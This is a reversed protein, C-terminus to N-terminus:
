EPKAHTESCVHLKQYIKALGRHDVFLQELIACTRPWLRQLCFDPRSTQWTAMQECAGAWIGRSRVQVQTFICTHHDPSHCWSPSKGAFVCPGEQTSFHWAQQLMTQVSCQLRLEEIKLSEAFSSKQRHKMFVMRHRNSFGQPYPYGLLLIALVTVSDWLGGIEFLARACDPFWSFLISWHVRRGDLCTSGHVCFAANLFFVKLVCPFRWGKLCNLSNRHIDSRSPANGSVWPFATRFMVRTGLFVRETNGFVRKQWSFPLPLTAPSVVTLFGAGGWLSIADFCVCVCM